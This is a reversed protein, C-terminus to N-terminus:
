QSDQAESKLKKQYDKSVIALAALVTKAPVKNEELLQILDIALKVHEPAQEITM